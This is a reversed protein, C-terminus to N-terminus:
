AIGGQRKNKAPCIIRSRRIIQLGLDSVFADLPVDWESVPVDINWQESFGYGIRLADPHAALYRDYYGGGYGLRYGSESFALGPVLICDIADTPETVPERIGMTGITFDSAKMGPAFVMERGHVRPYVLLKGEEYLARHVPATDIEQGISAFLAITKADRIFDTALLHKKAAVAKDMRMAEPISARVRKMRIRLEKKESKEM